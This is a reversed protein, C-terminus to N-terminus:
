CGTAPARFGPVPNLDGMLTYRGGNASPSQIAEFVTNPATRTFWRLYVEDEAFSYGDACQTGNPNPGLQFTDTGIAFGIAGV